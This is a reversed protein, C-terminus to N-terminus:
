FMSQTALRTRKSKHTATPQHKIPAAQKQPRVESISNCGQSSHHHKLKSNVNSTTQLLGLIAVITTLKVDKLVVNSQMIFPGARIVPPLCFYCHQTDGILKKRTQIPLKKFAVLLQRAQAGNEQAIINYM